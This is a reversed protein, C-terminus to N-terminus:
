ASILFLEPSVTAAVSVANRGFPVTQPVVFRIIAPSPLVATSIPASPVHRAATDPDAWIANWPAGPPTVALIVVISTVSPVDNSEGNEGRITQDSSSRQNSGKGDLSQAPCQWIGRGDVPERM